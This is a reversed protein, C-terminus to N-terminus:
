EDLIEAFLDIIHTLSITDAQDQFLDKLQVECGPCATILEIDIKKEPSERGEKRFYKNLTKEMGEIKHKGIKMSLDYHTLSFSGGGGCCKDADNMEIYNERFISQLLSRPEETIKLGSRLHCPDHWTVIRDADPRQTCLSDRYKHLFSVSDIVKGAFKEGEPGFAPYYKKIASVCTPCAAVIDQGEFGSFAELNKRAFSNFQESYGYSLHPFGCCTQTQPIYPSFGSKRIVKLLNAPTKSELFTHLCGVFFGVKPLSDDERTREEITSFRELFSKEALQPLLRRRPINPLAFRLHIGRGSQENHFAIKTLKSLRTIWNKLGRPGSFVKQALFDTTKEALFSQQHLKRLLPIIQHMPVKNPCGAECSFCLLCETISTRLTHSIAANGQVFQKALFNKGRAVIKEDLTERYLPCKALCKGCQVCNNLADELLLLEEPLLDTM